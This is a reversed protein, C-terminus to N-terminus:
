LWQCLMQKANILSVNILLSLKRMHMLIRSRNSFNDCHYRWTFPFIKSLPKLDWLQGYHFQWTFPVVKWLPKLNWVPKLESRTEHLRARLKITTWLLNWSCQNQLLIYDSFIISHFPNQNEVFYIRVTYIMKDNKKFVYLLTNSFLIRFFVSAGLLEM